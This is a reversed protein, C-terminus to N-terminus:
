TYMITCTCVNSAEQQIQPGATKLISSSVGGVNLNLDRSTTNVIVDTQFSSCSICVCSCTKGYFCNDPFSCTRVGEQAIQGQSIRVTVGEKTTISGKM